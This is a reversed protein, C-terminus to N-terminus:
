HSGFRYVVDVAFRGRNNPISSPIVPGGYTSNTLRTHLYGGTFRASLHRTLAYDLGGEVAFALSTASNYQWTYAQGANHFADAGLLFQGFASTRTSPHAVIYRPGFLFTTESTSDSSSPSYDYFQDIDAVIFIRPHVRVDFGGNAGYGTGTAGGGALSFGGSVEVDQDASRIESSTAQAQCWVSPAFAVICLAVSLAKM